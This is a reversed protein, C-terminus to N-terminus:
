ETVLIDDEDFFAKLTEVLARFSGEDGEPMFLEIISADSNSIYEGDPYSCYYIQEELNIGSTELDVELHELCYNIYERASWFKIDVRVGNILFSGESYVKWAEQLEEVMRAKYM